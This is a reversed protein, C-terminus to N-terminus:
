RPVLFVSKEVIKEIPSGSTISFYIPHSGAAIADYPVQLRVSIWKSETSAVIAQDDTMMTLGPIGEAALTFRQEHEAANMIQLRYNNETKGGSVIRALSARDRVVDVKFPTRLALSVGVGIVIVWLIGTYALVRPRFVRRVVQAHTWGQTMANQTSYKVLGRPYGMKDMVIDCVDACAGCGICEYQLGNRIDIGTPCVQVCLTCDVCAGLNLTAVDAKKVAHVM